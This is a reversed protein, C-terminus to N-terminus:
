NKYFYINDLYVTSPTVGTQGDFKLQMIDTMSVGANTFFSLPIDYSNWTGQNLPTLTYLEEGTSESIPTMQIVTADPTWLDIHLFEMESLDENSALQTGQYNFDDYKMVENGEIDITSVTTSQGWDPFFDTGSVNTYADSFISIVNAADQSPSPAATEPTDNSSGGGNNHFYVNDIVLNPLDGSLVLQALNARNELGTFNALPIDLSVWEETQLTPATFTVEHQSDDNGGFVNDPGFDVLLVNFANPLDTNEPTWIDIHFTNMSSANITQTAFEIGVFNLNRYRIMDDGNVEFFFEQATSFQWYTNWVDVPVNDYENCFMSIVDDPDEDPIPASDEPLIADGISILILKGAAELEGIKGTITTSGEGVILVDSNDNTVAVDTNSSTFTFYAPSIGVTADISTPLNVTYQLDSIFVEENVEVTRSVTEGGLMSARPDLLTGIREFKVEDIWFTYGNGDEPGESYYFLGKELELVTTDPIPIYYKDWNTNVPVNNLSVEYRNAGLDNGFGVVDITASKSAKAYFSLVNYGTLDRGSTSSFVGGVYAGDPDGVDPVAFRMSTTGRYKVDSDVEFATLVTGAFASYELDGPFGDIYVEGNTPFDALELDDIDRQCGIIFLLILALLFIGKSQIYRISNM